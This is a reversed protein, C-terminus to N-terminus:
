QGQQMVEVDIHGQERNYKIANTLLNLFIQKTRMYDAKVWYKDSECHTVLSIAKKSALSEVIALVDDCVNKIDFVENILTIQGSEISSLDLIENILKLLHNGAQNIQLVSDLQSESLPDGDDLEMLQSFGIISNLPTRLEHSMSSLFQSKAKNAKDAAEKALLANIEAKKRDTVISGVGQFEIVERRDESFIARTSWHQWELEGNHLTEDEHIHIPKDISLKAHTEVFWHRIDTPLLDLISKGIIDEVSVGFYRCYAQNAFTLIFDKTYRCILDTQDEVVAKYRRDTERVQREVGRIESLDRVFGVFEHKTETKIEVVRLYLPFISGDKRQGKVERGFGIINKKGTASYNHLYSDHADKFPNPMLNKVNKGQIENANYGFVREAQKNFLNILGRSNISIIAEHSSNFITDTFKKQQLILMAQESMAEENQKAFDTIIKLETNKQKLEEILQQQNENNEVLLSMSERVKKITPCVIFFLGMFFCFVTGGISLWLIAQYNELALMIKQQQIRVIKDIVPIFLRELQLYQGILDHLQKRDVPKLNIIAQIKIVVNVMQSTLKKSDLIKSKELRLETLKLQELDANIRAIPINSENSSQQLRLLLLNKALRQSLMRQRGAGDIIVDETKSNYFDYVLYGQSCVVVVILMYFVFFVYKNIIRIEVQPRDMQEKM